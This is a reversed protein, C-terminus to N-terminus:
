MGLSVVYGSGTKNLKGNEDKIGNSATCIYEGADQYRDREEQQPLVLITSGNLERILEDFQSM